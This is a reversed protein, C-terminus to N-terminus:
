FLTTKAKFEYFFSAALYPALLAKAVAEKIKIYKIYKCLIISMKTNFNTYFTTKNFLILM